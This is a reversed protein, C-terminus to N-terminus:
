AALRYIKLVAPSALLHSARPGWRRDQSPSRDPLALALKLTRM